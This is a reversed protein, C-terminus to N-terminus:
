TPLRCLKKQNQRQTTIIATRSTTDSEQFSMNQCSFKKKKSKKVDVDFLTGACDHFAAAQSPAEVGRDARPVCRSSLIVEFFAAAARSSMVSGNVMLFFEFFFDFVSSSTSYVNFLSWRWMNETSVCERHKDISVITRKKTM